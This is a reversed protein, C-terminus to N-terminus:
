RWDVDLDLISIFAVLWDALLLDVKIGANSLMELTPKVNTQLKDEVGTLCLLEMERELSEIEAAVKLNRNIM